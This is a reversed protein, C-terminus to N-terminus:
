LFKGMNENNCKCTLKEILCRRKLGNLVLKQYQSCFCNHLFSNLKAEPRLLCKIKAIVITENKFLPFLLLVFFSSYAGKIEYGLPISLFQGGLPAYM